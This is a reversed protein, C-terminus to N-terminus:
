NAKVLCVETKVGLEMLNKIWLKQKVSLSDGPGKVEVVRCKKKGSNWVILDPFGASWQSYNKAMMKTIGVVAKVGLCTVIDKFDQGDEVLNNSMLSFYERYTIFNEYMIESLSDVDLQEYYSFKKDIAERRNLYFQSGFLDLPATQYPCVFAGPISIGYIEDWLLAAFITVPLKGECHVACNYGDTKYHKMAVMEVSMLETSAENKVRWVSKTGTTFESDMRIGFVTVEQPVVVFEEERDKILQKMLEKSQSSIGAKRAVLKRARDLMEAVDVPSLREETLAKKTLAVSAELDKNHSMEIMALEGYWRGIKGQIINKNAILAKLFKTATAIGEVKEKKFADVSSWVVKGWVYTADFRRVHSPVDLKTQSKFAPELKNFALQGLDRILDWNKKVIADTIKILTTKAEVYEMLCQRNRFIPFREEPLDPYVRQEYFVENLIRFVDTLSKDSAQIPYLLTLLRKILSWTQVSVRVCSGVTEEIVKKLAASPAKMGAFMSKKKGDIKLLELIMKPKRTTHPVKMRKCISKLEDVLLLDLVVSMQDTEYDCDFIGKDVLEQFSASTFNVEIMGSIKKVRYWSEKWKLLRALLIKADDSLGMMLRLVNLEEVTFYACNIPMSLTNYFASFLQQVHKNESPKLRKVEECMSMVVSGFEIDFHKEHYIKELDFDMPAYPQTLNISDNESDESDLRLKKQVQSLSLNSPRKNDMKSPSDTKKPTVKIQFKNTSKPTLHGHKRKMERKISGSSGTVRFFESLETQRM